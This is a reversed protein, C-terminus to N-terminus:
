ASPAANPTARVTGSDLGDRDVVAAPSLMSESRSSVQGNTSTRHTCNQKPSDYEVKKRSGLNKARCNWALASAIPATAAVASKALTSAEGHVPAHSSRPDRRGNMPRPANTLPRLAPPKASMWAMEQGM